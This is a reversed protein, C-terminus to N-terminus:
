INIKRGPFIVVLLVSTFKWTKIHKSYMYMKFIYMHMHTRAHAYVHMKVRLNQSLPQPNEVSHSDRILM